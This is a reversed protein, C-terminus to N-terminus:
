AACSTELTRDVHFSSGVALCTRDSDLGSSQTVQQTEAALSVEEAPSVALLAAAASPQETSAATDTASKRKIHRWTAGSSGAAMHQMAPAVPTSVEGAGPASGMVWLASAM